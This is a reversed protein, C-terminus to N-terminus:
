LFHTQQWWANFFHSVKADLYKDHGDSAWNVKLVFIFSCVFIGLTPRIGPWLIAFTPYNGPFDMQLNERLHHLTPLFSCDKGRSQLNPIKRQMVHFLSM